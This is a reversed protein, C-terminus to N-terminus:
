DGGGDEGGDEGEPEEDSFNGSESGGPLAWEGVAQGCMPVGAGSRIVNCACLGPCTGKEEKEEGTTDVCGNEVLNLFVENRSFKPWFTKCAQSSASTPQRLTNSIPLSYPTLLCLTVCVSVGVGVGVGVGAGVSVGVCYVVCLVCCM